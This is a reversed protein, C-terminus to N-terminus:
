LTSCKISNQVTAARSVHSVIPLVQWFDTGLIIIKGGFPVDNGMIDKLLRNIWM